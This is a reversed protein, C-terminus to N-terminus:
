DIVELAGVSVSDGKRAKILANYIESWRSIDVITLCGLSQTGTHLYRAGSHGIRFWTKARPAENQYRAGGRHPYDPIEIDYLGKKWPSDPHDAAKYKKGDLFFIKQSISYKVYAMPEHIIGSVFQSTGGDRLTVSAYEGRYAGEMILFYERKADSKEKKIKLFAPLNIKSKDRDLIAKLWGDSENPFYQAMELVEASLIVEFIAVAKGWFKNLLASRNERVQIEFLFEQPKGPEVDIKISKEVVGLDNFLLDKEVMTIKIGTKFLKQDTLFRAVERNIEADTNIKIKKDITAIQGMAETEVRIDDGISNGSYKIRAIKFVISKVM